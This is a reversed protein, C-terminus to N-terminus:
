YRTSFNKAHQSFFSFSLSFSLSFFPSNNNNNNNEIYDVVRACPDHSRTRDKGRAENERKGRPGDRIKSGPRVYLKKETKAM